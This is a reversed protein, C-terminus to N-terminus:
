SFDMTLLERRYPPLSDLIARGYGKSVIREDFLTIRGSDEEHRLLRGSAQVLRFAADPVSLDMFPNRGQGELWQALTAELPDNPVAFPIKAILVHTCYRGPLDVGEAFSALGFIVSGEGEDVRQRHRQLLRAKSHEDQCLVRQRWDAPLAEQVDLMQRRSSFLMLAAEDEQLLRPLARAILATHRETQSPPCGLRPVQFCAAENFPFPSPIRLLLSHEPLGARMKFMDFRGLATLTASTLVAGGCRRWLNHQLDKAALVPASSLGFDPPPERRASLWRATPATGPQDPEAYSRWLALDGDLRKYMAWVAPFWQGAQGRDGAAAEEEEAADKLADALERLLGCLRSLPACLAEAAAQLPEPAIGHSFALRSEGDRSDMVGGNSGAQQLIGQLLIRVEGLRPSLNDVASQLAEGGAADTLGAQLLGRGMRQLRQLREETAQLRTSAAFHSNSKHPLHHAEDIIYISREPAPLIAGGGLALDSLLLDQNTVICDAKEAEDRARYFCCERYDRCKPGMCRANDISLRRWEADAVPEPWDDRDGQWGGGDIAQQMDQYLQLDGPEAEQPDDAYLEMLLPETRPPAGGQLPAGSGDKEKTAGGNTASEKTAGSTAGGNEILARLRSLCLYRGRGKALAASFDLDSGELLEPIDKHLVQEQLAVTATAIVVKMELVKALPLVALLYALTKGTGTGAEVACVPPEGEGSGEGNSDGSEDGEAPISGLCNAIEAIMRRQGARPMLGQSELMQRYAAQIIKQTKRRKEPSM